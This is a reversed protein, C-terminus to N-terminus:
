ATATPTEENQERFNLADRLVAFSRARAVETNMGCALPFHDLTDSSRKGDYLISRVTPPLSRLPLHCKNMALVLFHKHHHANFNM